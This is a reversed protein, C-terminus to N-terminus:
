LRNHSRCASSSAAAKNSFEKQHLHVVAGDLTEDINLEARLWIPWQDSDNIIKSINFHFWEGNQSYVNHHSKLNSQQNINHYDFLAINIIFHVETTLSAIESHLIPNTFREAHTRAFISPKISVFWLNIPYYKINKDAWGHLGHSM